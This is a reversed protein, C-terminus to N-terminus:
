AASNQILGTLALQVAREFDGAGHIRLSAAVRELFLSRKEPPLPGAAAMVIQLQSDSLALMNAQIRTPVQYQLPHKGAHRRKGGGRHPWSM